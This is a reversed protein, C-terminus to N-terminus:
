FATDSLSLGLLVTVIVVLIFRGSWVDISDTVKHTYNSCHVQTIESLTLINKNIIFPFNKLFIAHETLCAINYWLDHNSIMVKWETWLQM